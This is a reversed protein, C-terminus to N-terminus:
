SKKSVLIYNPKLCKNVVGGYFMGKVFDELSYSKSVDNENTADLFYPAFDTIDLDPLQLTWEIVESDMAMNCIKLDIIAYATRVLDKNTINQIVYEVNGVKVESGYLAKCQFISDAFLDKRATAWRYNALNVKLKIVCTDGDSDDYGLFTPENDLQFCNEPIGFSYSPKGYNFGSEINGILSKNNDLLTSIGNRLDAVNEQDGMILFYYPSQDCLSTGSKDLYQSTAGVLSIAKGFKGFISSIDTSYQTLLVNPAAAGVPSYKMDSILVAVEGEDTNIGNIISQLMVPVKTSATAVFAGTNMKAQFASIPISAAAGGDNTLITVDDVVPSYYSLIRWVDEKFKTPANARFFGNMSGSVEVFFKIKRPHVIVFDSSETSDKKLCGDEEFHRDNVTNVGGGCSFLAPILLVVLVITALLGKRM